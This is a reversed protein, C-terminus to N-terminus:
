DKKFLRPIAEHNHNSKRKWPWRTSTMRSKASGKINSNESDSINPGSLWLSDNRFIIRFDVTQNQIVRYAKLDVEVFYGAIEDLQISYSDTGLASFRVIINHGRSTDLQDLQAVGDEDTNVSRILEGSDSNLLEFDFYQVPGYDNWVRFEVMDNRNLKRILKHNSIMSSKPSITTVKITSDEIEFNGVGYIDSLLCCGYLSFFEVSDEPGIRVYHTSDSWYVGHFDSEQCIGQSISFVTLIYLLYKM